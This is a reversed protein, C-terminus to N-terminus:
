MHSKNFGYVLGCFNWFNDIFKVLLSTFSFSWCAKFEKFRTLSIVCFQLPFICTPDLLFMWSILLTTNSLIIWHCAYCYHHSYLDCNVRLLDTKGHVDRHLKTWPNKSLYMQTEGSLKHGKKGHRVESIICGCCKCLKHRRFPPVLQKM